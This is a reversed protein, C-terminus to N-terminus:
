SYRIGLTWTWGSLWGPCCWRWFVPATCRFYIHFFTQGQFNLKLLLPWCMFFVSWILLAPLTHWFPTMESGYHGWFLHYGRGPMPFTKQCTRTPRRLLYRERNFIFFSCVQIIFYGLERMLIFRVEICPFYGSVYKVSCNVFKHGLLTYSQFMIDDAMSIPNSMWTLNMTELTHKFSEFM